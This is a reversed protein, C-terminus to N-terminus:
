QLQIREHEGVDKLPKGTAIAKAFGVLNVLTGSPVDWYEASKVEVHILSLEPDDVGDPFWAKVAPSWLEKAKERDQVCSALGSVSVYRNDTPSAFVVNVHQDKEIAHVKGSRNSTFFWLDGNFETEQMVMPRSQLSGDEGVTTLMAVKIDKILHRLKDFNSDLNKHIETRM